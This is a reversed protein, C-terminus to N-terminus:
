RWRRLDVLGAPRLQGAVATVDLGPPDGRQAPVAIAERDLDAAPCPSRPRQQGRGARATLEGSPRARSFRPPQAARGGGVGGAPAVLTGPTPTAPLRALMTACTM